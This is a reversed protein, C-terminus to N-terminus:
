RCGTRTSPSGNSPAVGFPWREDLEIGIADPGVVEWPRDYVVGHIAHPPM